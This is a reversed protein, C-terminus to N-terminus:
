PKNFYFAKEIQTCTIAKLIIFMQKFQLYPSFDCGFLKRFFNVHCLFKVTCGADVGIERLLCQMSNIHAKVLYM